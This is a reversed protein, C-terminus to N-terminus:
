GSELLGDLYAALRQRKRRATLRQVGYALEHIVVSATHLQHRGDQLQEVVFANPHEQLPDSLVYTDLLARVLPVRTPRPRSGAV